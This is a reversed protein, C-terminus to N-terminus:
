WHKFKGWAGIEPSQKELSFNDKTAEAPRAVVEKNLANFDGVDMQGGEDFFSGQHEPFVQGPDKKRNM